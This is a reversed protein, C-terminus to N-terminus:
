DRFPSPGEEGYVLMVCLTVGPDVRGSAGVELEVSRPNFIRGGRVNIKLGVAVHYCMRM